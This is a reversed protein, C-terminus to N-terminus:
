RYDVSCGGGLWTGCCLSANTAAPVVSLTGSATTVRLFVGILPVVDAVAVAVSTLLISQNLYCVLWLTM